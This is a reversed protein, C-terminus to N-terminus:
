SSWAATGSSSRGSARTRRALLPRLGRHAGGLPGLDRAPPRGALRRPRPARPLAHGARGAPLAGEALADCEAVLDPLADARLFGPLISVGTTACSPPTALSWRRAGAGDLDLVPYRDLDVLGAPDLVPALRRVEM